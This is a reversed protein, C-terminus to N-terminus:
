RDECYTNEHCEKYCSCGICGDFDPLLDGDELSDNCSEFGGTLTPMSNEGEKANNDHTARAKFFLNDITTNQPWM